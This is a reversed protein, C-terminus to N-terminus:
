KSKPINSIIGFEVIMPITEIMSILDCCKKNTDNGKINLDAYMGDSHSRFNEM